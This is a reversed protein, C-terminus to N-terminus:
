SRAALAFSILSWTSFVADQALGTEKAVVVVAHLAVHVFGGSLLRINTLGFGCDFKLAGMADILCPASSTM